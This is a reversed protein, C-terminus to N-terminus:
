SAGGAADGIEQVLDGCGEVLSELQPDYKRMLDGEVIAAVPPGDRRWPM